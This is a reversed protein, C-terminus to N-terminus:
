RQVAWPTLARGCCKSSSLSRRACRGVAVARSAVVAVPKALAAAAQRVAGLRLRRPPLLAPLSALIVSARWRPRLRRQDPNANPDPDPDPNPNPNADSKRDPDPKADPDPDPDPNPNPNPSTHPAGPKLHHRHADHLLRRRRVARRQAALHAYPGSTTACWRAPSSWCSTSRHRPRTSKHYAAPNFYKAANVANVYTIVMMLHQIFRTEYCRTVFTDHSTPASCM